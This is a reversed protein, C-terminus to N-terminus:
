CHEVDDDDFRIGLRRCITLMRELTTGGRCEDLVEIGMGAAGIAAGYQKDPLMWSDFLTGYLCSAVGPRMM